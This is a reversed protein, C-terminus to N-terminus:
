PRLIEPGVKVEAHAIEPQMVVIVRDGIEASAQRDLWPGSGGLEIAGAGEIRESM